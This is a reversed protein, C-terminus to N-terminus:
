ELEVKKFEKTDKIALAFWMDYEDPHKKFWKYEGELMVIPTCAGCGWFEGVQPGIDDLKYSVCGDYTRYGERIDGFCWKGYENIYVVVRKNLKFHDHKRDFPLPPRYGRKKAIRKLDSIHQKENRINQESNKIERKHYDVLAVIDNRSMNGLLCRTNWKIEDGCDKMLDCRGSICYGYRHSGWANDCWGCQEMNTSGKAKERMEVPPENDFINEM